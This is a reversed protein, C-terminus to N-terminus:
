TRIVRVLDIDLHKSAIYVECLARRYSEKGDRVNPTIWYDLEESEGELGESDLIKAVWDPIKLSKMMERYAKADQEM